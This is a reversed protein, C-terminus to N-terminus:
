ITKEDGEESTVKDNKGLASENDRTEGTAISNATACQSQQSRPWRALCGIGTQADRGFAVYGTNGDIIATTSDEGVRDKMRVYETGNPGHIEIVTDEPVSKDYWFHLNVKADYSKANAISVPDSVPNPSCTPNLKIRPYYTAEQSPHRDRQASSLPKDYWQLPVKSQSSASGHKRFPPM